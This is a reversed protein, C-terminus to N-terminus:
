GRQEDEPAQSVHKRILEQLELLEDETLAKDRVLNLLLPTLSGGCLKEAMQRLGCRILGDRDVTATFVRVSGESGSSVHGKEELRELLKQVTTYHAPGKGPYLADTIQRRTAPGRDWLVRLVALEADTVGRDSRAV